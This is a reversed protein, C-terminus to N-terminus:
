VGIREVSNLVLSKESNYENVVFIGRLPVAKDFYKVLKDYQDPWVTVEISEGISNEFTLKGFKRGANKGSKKIVLEKCSTVVGELSISTNSMMQKVRSFSQSYTGGKFFGPFLQEVSGSLYTGLVEKEFSLKDKLDWEDLKHESTSPKFDDLYNSFPRDRNGMEFYDDSLKKIYKSLEKRITEYNESAYKRGIGLCDFAGAKALAQIATKNVASSSTRYLFDEFSAYPQNAIINALAKDGLGKIALLGTVITKKDYISYLDKSLNIDCPKIQINFSKADKKIDEIDAETSTSKRTEANLKACLLPATAHAKYYATRYSNISYAIAHSNSSCLGSSLIFNHEPHDIELDYAQMFGLYEARIIKRGKLNRTDCKISAEFPKRFEHEYARRLIQLQLLRAQDSGMKQPTNNRQESVSGKRGSAQVYGGWINSLLAAPRRNRYRDNIRRSCFGSGESGRRVEPPLVKSIRPGKPTALAVRGDKVEQRGKASRLHMKGFVRGHQSRALGKPPGSAAASNRTAGFYSNRDGIGKSANFGNQEGCDYSQKEYGETSGSVKRLDAQAANIGCCEYDTNNRVLHDAGEQGWSRESEAVGEVGRMVSSSAQNLQFNSVGKSVGPMNKSKGSDKTLGFTELDNQMIRWVPQQGYETLWKHDLSCREITGDDFELEWMPVEGHDHLAVVESEVSQGQSNITVVVDGPLVNAIEIDGKNLVKIKTSKFMSKNFGYKGFPLIVDHWIMEAEEQSIKSFVMSDKIFEAGTKKQLELGKEKLKAIKRLSDAKSRDWGAVAAAIHLMDEEYVKIGYTHKLISSLLPHQYTVPKRGAKREMFDQREAKSVGPRGLANILAIDEISNPQLPKCLPALTTGELQFCGVVRGSRILKFTLEDYEPIHDPDPINLGINKAMEHADRLIDLTDLGLFDIKVLKVEECTDKDYAVAVRGDKDTRLPVYDDLPIDSIIVGAAHTSMARPLGVIENAYDLLEPYEQVFTKLKKSYKLAREMTDIDIITDDETVKDPIDATIEKALKFATSKDGGINLSRAIDSIAVKPTITNINSIYAVHRPGYKQRVYEVVRERGRPSFDTDIDPLSKKEKNHFREFLLGYKISDVTHIGLFFAVLCGACSGRGPGVDIKNKRAWDIFDAVILMYSCFNRSELIDIEYLLRDWYIKKTEVPFDKTYQTFVKWVKYRLYANEERIAQMNPKSTLWSEFDKADDCRSIHSWDFRPLRDVTPELYKPEECLAAIKATNIILRNAFEEGYEKKFFAKIEEESKVYFEPCPLIRGIGTGACSICLKDSDKPYKSTGECLACSMYTAYRHRTLDDLPKKDSIALVMDHYKEHKPTLYHSDCTAVMQINLEEAIEKLKHNLLRQDFTIGTKKDTRTLNHPQLEIFFRDGFIDKFVLAYQKAKEMDKHFISNAIISGGCASTAFLGESYQRLISEDVRPYEKGMIVTAHQFGLATIKLLNKYGQHNAALLVLHRRKSKEDNLDEVFYIENGPILKVGTAKSAKYAEYIGSMVGHDTVAIATQGLEKARKFLQNARIIADLQSYCTHSHLNAFGLM